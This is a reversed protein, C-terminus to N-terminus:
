LILSHSSLDLIYLEIDLSTELLLAISSSLEILIIVRTHVAQLECPELIAQELWLSVHFLHLLHLCETLLHLGEDFVVFVCYLLKLLLVFFHLREFM